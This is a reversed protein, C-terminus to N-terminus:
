EDPPEQKLTLLFAIVDEVQQASLIPQGARDSRVGRLGDIRHFPPMITEPNVRTSDVLRLRLEAASFHQGTDFLPPGVTGHFGQEPIPARHCALCNGERGSFVDRGRLADGTLGCLPDDIRSGDEILYDSVLGECGAQSPGIACFLSISAAVAFLVTNSLIVCL